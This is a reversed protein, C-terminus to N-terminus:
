LLAALEELVRARTADLVLDRLPATLGRAVIVAGIATAAIATARARRREDAAALAAHPTQGPHRLLEGVLTEFAGEYATRIPGGLRAADSALAAFTCGAGVVELHDPDLYDALLARTARRWAPPRSVPRAALQRILGHDAAIVEAFLAEKSRFHAYFGGHTLGADRMVDAIGAGAFGRQRFVRGASAVIRARTRAKHAKGLPM